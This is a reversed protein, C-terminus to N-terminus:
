MGVSADQKKNHVLSHRSWMVLEVPGLVRRVQSHTEVVDFNLAQAWSWGSEKSSPCCSLGLGLSPPSTKERWNVAQPPARTEGGVSDISPVAM